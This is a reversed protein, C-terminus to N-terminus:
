ASILIINWGKCTVIESVIEIGLPAYLGLLRCYLEEGKKFAKLFHTLSLCEFNRPIVERSRNVFPKFKM